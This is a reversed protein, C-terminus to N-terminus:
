EDGESPDETSLQQPEPVTKIESNDDAQEESEAEDGDGGEESVPEPEAGVKDFTFDSLAEFKRYLVKRNNRSPTFLHYLPPQQQEQAANKIQNFARLGTFSYLEGWSTLYVV